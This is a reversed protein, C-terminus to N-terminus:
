NRGLFPVLMPVRRRYADYADADLEQRLWSEETRAKLWLAVVILLAGLLGWVTGVAAATALIALLIGTYIPHRVLAYPGTTVLHHDAKKTVAASWLAGLHIRAWWAFAFGCAVLAACAWAEARTVSWLRLTDVSFRTPILLAVGGALALLRSALEGKLGLRKETRRSWVAALIWSIFWVIWLTSIIPGPRM